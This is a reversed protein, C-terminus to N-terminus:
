NDKLAEFAKFYIDDDAYEDHIERARRLFKKRNMDDSKISDIKDAQNM